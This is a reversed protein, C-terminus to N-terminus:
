SNSLRTLRDGQRYFLITGQSAHSQPNFASRCVLRDSTPNGILAWAQTIPWAGIPPACSTVVCEYKEGEKERGAGRELFFYSREFFLIINHYSSQPSPLITKEKM